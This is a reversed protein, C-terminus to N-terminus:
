FVLNSGGEGKGGGGIKMNANPLLKYFSPIGLILLLVTITQVFGRTKELERTIAIM